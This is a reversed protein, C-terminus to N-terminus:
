ETLEASRVTPIKAEILCTSFSYNFIEETM